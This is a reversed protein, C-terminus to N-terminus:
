VLLVAYNHDFIRLRQHCTPANDKDNASFPTFSDRKTNVHVLSPESVINQSATISSTSRSENTIVLLCRQSKHSELAAQSGTGFYIVKLATGIGSPVKWDISNLRM